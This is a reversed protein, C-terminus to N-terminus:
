FNISAIFKPFRQLGHTHVGDASADAFLKASLVAEDGEIGYKELVRVFEAVMEDYPIRM